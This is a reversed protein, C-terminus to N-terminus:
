NKRDIIARYAEPRQNRVNYGIGSVKLVEFNGLDLADIWDREDPRDSLTVSDGARGDPSGAPVVLPLYNVRWGRDERIDEMETNPGGPPTMTPDFFAGSFPGYRRKVNQISGEIQERRRQVVYFDHGRIAVLRAITSAASM